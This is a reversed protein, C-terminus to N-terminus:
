YRRIIRGFNDLKIFGVKILSIKLLHKFICKNFPLCKFSKILYKFYMKKSVGKFSIANMIYLNAYISRRQFFSIKYKNVISNITQINGECMFSISKENKSTINNKHKRYMFLPKHIYGIKFDHAIRINMDWDEFNLNENFLGTEDFIKRDYMSFPNLFNGYLLEKFMDNSSYYAWKPVSNYMFIKENSNDFFIYGNCVVEKIQSNNHLYEVQEEIKNPLIMDDSALFCLYKGKSKKIGKNLTKCIGENKKNIFIFEVFRKICKEKYLNIIEATNDKSGDNLIILEINQYTQNIISEICKGAYKEHNYAPVIVSVLEDTSMIESGYLILILKLIIAYNKVIIAFYYIM